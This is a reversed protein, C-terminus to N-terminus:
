LLTLGSLEDLVLGAREPIDSGSRAPSAFSFSLGQQRDVGGRGVRGPYCGQIIVFLGVAQLDGCVLARVTSQRDAKIPAPSLCVLRGARTGCARCLLSKNTLAFLHEFVGVFLADYFVGRRCIRVIPM